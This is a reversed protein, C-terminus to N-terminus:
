PVARFTITGEKKKGWAKRKRPKGKERM